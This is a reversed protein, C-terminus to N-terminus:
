HSSREMYIALCAGGAREGTTSSGSVSGSSQFRDKNARSGVAPADRRAVQVKDAQRGAQRSAAAVRSSSIWISRINM